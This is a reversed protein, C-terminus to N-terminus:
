PEALARVPQSRAHNRWCDHPRSLPPRHSMSGLPSVGGTTLVKGLLVIYRPVAASNAWRWIKRLLADLSSAPIRFIISPRDASKRNGARMSRLSTRCIRCLGNLETDAASSIPFARRTWSASAATMAPMPAKPMSVATLWRPPSRRLPKTTPTTRTSQWNWIPRIMFPPRPFSSTLSWRCLPM